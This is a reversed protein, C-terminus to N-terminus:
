GTCNDSFWDTNCVWCSLRVLCECVLLVSVCFLAGSLGGTRWGGLIGGGGGWNGGYVYSSSRGTQSEKLGAIKVTQCGHRFYIVTAERGVTM